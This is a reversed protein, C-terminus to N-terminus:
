VKFESIMKRLEGALERLRLASSNMEQSQHAVETANSSVTNIDRAVEDAVVSSQGVNETVEQIGLTAQVINEAIEGTTRNQEDVAAVIIKVTENVENIVSTIQEIQTITATTSSQIGDIQTKIEATAGATQRALEKIENAVVAFGKGAEGARAAEITANLALLNTQESIETITETVKGIKTAAEGLENVKASASLAETVANATIERANETNKSIENITKAMGETAESVLAINTSAEETAAAVSNMNASMEEAATAVSLSRSNMESSGASLGESSHRLEGSKEELTDASAIIGKIVGQLQNKMSALDRNIMGLEDSSTIPIEGTLDKRAIKKIEQSANRLPRIISRDLLLWTVLVCAFLIGLSWLAIVIKTKRVERHVEDLSSIIQFAGHIEGVKWGELRGGTPDISGKPDGHCYLCEETLRIPRFYRIEDETVVVKEELNEAKLENLITLEFPTPENAPNRPSVKPVRFQYNAKQANIAATQMATVVPVAEIVQSPEIQDFPKIIGLQLKRSMENRTAEAMLVIAKSKDVVSKEAAVWIDDTWLWAMVAAIVVPGALAPLLIKWKISLDNFKM